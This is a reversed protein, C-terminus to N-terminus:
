NNAARKQGGMQNQIAELLGHFAKEFAALGEQELTQTVCGLDIGFRPLQNLCDAARDVEKELTAKVQGHHRFAEYTDPPVTTVTNPGILEELYLVDRYQPNKTGTSAWLLRQPKAGADRMSLFEATNFLQQYEKFALKANAIASKGLLAQAGLQDETPHQKMWQHLLPDIKSDVRSVFFSAVSAMGHVTRGKQVRYKLGAIFAQAIEKYRDISFLLTANVNVGEAILQEVAPVGAQTAPVKIMLNPRNVRSFLERAQKVTGQTDHALTPSVELSVYGEQWQSLQYVQKFADCADQIDQVALYYFVQEPSIHRHQMVVKLIADHYDSSGAIAKEFISPNSTIGKLGDEAIMRQLAGGSLLSRTINDYWVSQEFIELQKLSNMSM